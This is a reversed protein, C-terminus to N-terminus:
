PLGEAAALTRRVAVRVASVKADVIRIASHTLEGTVNLPATGARVVDSVRFAIGKRHREAAGTFIVQGDARVVDLRVTTGKPRALVVYRSHLTEENPVWQALVGAIWPRVFLQGLAAPSECLARNLFIEWKVPGCEISHCRDALDIGYDAGRLKTRAAETAKATKTRVKFTAMEAPRGRTREVFPTEPLFPGNLGHRHAILASAFVLQRYTALDAPAAVKLLRRAAAPGAFLGLAAVAEEQVRPDRTGAHRLLAGEAAPTAIRGLGRAAAIREPQPAKEDALIAALEPTAVEPTAGEALARIARTASVDVEFTKQRRAVAILQNTQASSLRGVPPRALRDTAVLDIVKPSLRSLSKAPM